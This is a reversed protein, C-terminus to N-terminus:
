WYTTGVALTNLAALEAVPIGVAVVGVNGKLQLGYRARGTYTNPARVM